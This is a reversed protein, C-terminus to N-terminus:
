PRASSGPVAFTYDDGTTVAFDATVSICEPLVLGNYLQRWNENVSTKLSRRGIRYTDDLYRIFSTM